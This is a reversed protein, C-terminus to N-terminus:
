YNLDTLHAVNDVTVIDGKTKVGVNLVTIRGHAVWGGGSDHVLGLGLGLKLGLGLGLGLVLGLDQVRVRIRVM